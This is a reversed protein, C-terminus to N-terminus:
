QRRCPKSGGANTYYVQAQMLNRWLSNPLLHERPWVAGKIHPPALADCRQDSHRNIHMCLRSRLSALPTGACALADSLACPALSAGKPRLSLFGRGTILSLHSHTNKKSIKAAQTQFIFSYTYKKNSQHLIGRQTDRETERQRARARARARERERERVCVFVGCMSSQVCVGCVIAFVGGIRGLAAKVALPYSTMGIHLLTTSCEEISRELVVIYSQWELMYKDSRNKKFYRCGAGCSQWLEDPLGCGGAISMSPSSRHSSYSSTAVDAVLDEHERSSPFFFPIQALCMLSHMNLFNAQTPMAHPPAANETAGTATGVRRETDTAQPGCTTCDRVPPIV